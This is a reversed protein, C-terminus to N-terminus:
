NLRGLHTQAPDGSRLNLRRLRAAEAKLLALKKPNTVIKVNPVLKKLPSARRLAASMRKTPKM